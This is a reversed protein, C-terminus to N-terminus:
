AHIRPPGTSEYLLYPTYSRHLSPTISIHAPLPADLAVIAPAALAHASHFCACMPCKHDQQRPIPKGGADVTVTRSGGVSCLVVTHGGTAFAPSALPSFQQLTLSFVLLVYAYARITANVAVSTGIRV